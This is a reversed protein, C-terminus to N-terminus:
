PTQTELTSTIQQKLADMEESRPSGFGIDVFSATEWRNVLSMKGDTESVGTLAHHINYALMLNPKTKANQRLPLLFTETQSHHGTAYSNEYVVYIGCPYGFLADQVPKLISHASTPLVDFLNIGKPNFGMRAIINEGAIKYILQDGSVCEMLIINSMLPAFLRIPLADKSAIAADAQADKYCDFFQQIKAPTRATDILEDFTM